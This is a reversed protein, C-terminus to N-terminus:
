MLTIPLHRSYSIFDKDITLISLKERVAIACILFDIHSGQIGKGRCINFFEAAMEYDATTIETDPFARLKEKLAELGAKDSIGSLIEQRIPGILAVLADDILTQLQRAIQERETNSSGKKKRRLAESWVSTDVLAKM